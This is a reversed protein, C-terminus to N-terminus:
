DLLRALQEPDEIDVLPGLWAALRRPEAAIQMLTELRSGALLTAFRPHAEAVRSLDAGAQPHEQALRGLLMGFACARAATVDGRERWGPAAHDLRADVQAAVAHLWGATEPLLRAAAISRANGSADEGTPPVVAAAGSGATPPPGQQRLAGGGTEGVTLLKSRVLVVTRAMRDHWTRGYPDWLAPLFGLGFAVQSLLRGSTRRVAEGGGCRRGDTLRVELGVALQGPSGGWRVLAASRGGLWAFLLGSWVAREAITVLEDDLTVAGVLDALGFVVLVTVVFLGADLVAAAARLWLPAYAQPGWAARGSPPVPEAM